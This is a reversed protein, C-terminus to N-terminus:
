FIPSPSASNSLRGLDYRMSLGMGYAGYPRFSLKQWHSDLRKGNITHLGFQIFDFLLLFGGQMILSNGFGVWRDRFEQDQPNGNGVERM